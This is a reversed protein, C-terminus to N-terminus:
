FKVERDGIRITQTRTVTGDENQKTTESATVEPDPRKAGSLDALLHMAKLKTDISADVTVTGGIRTTTGDEATHVHIQAGPVVREEKELGDIVRGAYGVRKALEDAASKRILRRVGAMETLHKVEDAGPVLAVVAGSLAEETTPVGAEGEFMEAEVGAAGEKGVVEVAGLEMQAKAEPIAQSQRLGVAVQPAGVPQHIEDVREAMQSSAENLFVGEPRGDNPPTREVKVRRQRPM